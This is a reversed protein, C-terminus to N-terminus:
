TSAGDDADYNAERWTVVDSLKYMVKRKGGLRFSKPGTRQNRWWRLTGVPVNLMAATEATTLLRDVELGILAAVVALATLVAKLLSLM